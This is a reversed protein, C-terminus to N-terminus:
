ANEAQRKGMKRWNIFGYVDNVLFALFCVVVSLYSAEELTALAWLVILVIDNAAYGIAYYPSRRFTLYVAAFSTTVSITSPIINATYFYELIFYFVLTILTTLVWLFGWEMQSLHNVKVEAKNGNYPNKIWSILACVAMPMTMGLYTMMEGYYSFSFSIVGYLLSFIIMLLQGFSNGKANFILSTVGILSAMLTLYNDRDFLCFAIVIALVSGFWLTREGRSFYHFLANLKKM